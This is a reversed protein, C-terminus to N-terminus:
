YQQNDLQEPSIDSKEKKNLIQVRPLTKDNTSQTHRASCKYFLRRTFIIQLVIKQHTHNTFCHKQKGVMSGSFMLIETAAVYNMQIDM